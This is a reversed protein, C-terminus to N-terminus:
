YSNSHFWNIFKQAEEKELYFVKNVTKDTRSDIELVTSYVKISHLNGNRDHSEEYGAIQNSRWTTPLAARGISANFEVVESFM